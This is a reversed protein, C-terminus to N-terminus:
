KHIDELRYGRIFQATLKQPDFPMPRRDNSHINYGLWKGDARICFVTHYSPHKGNFFSIIYEGDRNMEDHSVTEYAIDYSNLARKISYPNGGFFGFFWLTLAGRRFFERRVTEFSKSRGLYILANYVSIVECATLNAKAAYLKQGALSGQGFIFKPDDPQEAKIGHPLLLSQPISLISQVRLLANLFKQFRTM